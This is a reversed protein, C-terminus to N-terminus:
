KRVTRIVGFAEAKKVGIQTGRLTALAEVAEYSRAHPFDRMESAYAKLAKMKVTFDKEINVFHAPCFADEAAPGAWETSSLVEFGYIAEVSSGPLPRCSVMVARATVGHDVNLDGAHHTYIIYPKLIRVAKEIVQVVDLLPMCDMANDPFNHYASEKMGLIRAAKDALKRREFRSEKLRRAGVGGTMFMAYVADGESAHRALTGGCGLAEDDPHAAVVLIHKRSNVQM